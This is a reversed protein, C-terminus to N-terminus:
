CASPTALDAMPFTLTRQVGIDTSIALIHHWGGRYHIMFDCGHRGGCGSLGIVDQRGIFQQLINWFPGVWSNRQM